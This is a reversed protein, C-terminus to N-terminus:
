LSKSTFNLKFHLIESWMVWKTSNVLTFQDKNQDAVYQLQVVNSIEGMDKDFSHAPDGGDQKDSAYEQSGEQM